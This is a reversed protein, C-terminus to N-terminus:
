AKGEAALQQWVERPAHIEGDDTIYVGAELAEALSLGYTEAWEAISEHGEHPAETSAAEEAAHGEAPAVEEGLMEDLTAPLADPGLEAAWERVGDLDPDDTAVEEARAQPCVLPWPSDVLTTWDWDAPDREEPLMPVLLTVRGYTPMSAM